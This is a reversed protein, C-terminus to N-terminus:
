GYIYGGKALEHAMVNTHRRKFEVLSNPYLENLLAICDRAIFGFYTFDGDSKNFFIERM